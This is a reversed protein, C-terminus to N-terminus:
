DASEYRISFKQLIERAAGVWKQGTVGATYIGSEDLKSIASAHKWIAQTIIMTPIGPYKDSVILDVIFEAETKERPM